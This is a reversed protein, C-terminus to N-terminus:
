NNKTRRTSDNNKGIIYKNYFSYIYKKGYQILLILKLILKPYKNQNNVLSTYLENLREKTLSHTRVLAKDSINTFEPAASILKGLMAYAFFKTGPYPVAINYTTNDSKLNLAFEKTEQITQETDSPLGIIFCSNIKIKNKKLCNIVSTIEDKDLQKELKKLIEDNGSEVGVNCLRCGSQYMIKALEEDINKPIIDCAWSIKIGSDIINKCLNLVWNKDYNFIDSKFYVYTTNYQEICYKVENIISEISRFRISNGNKVSSLCFFCNYPCGRSVEIDVHKNNLIFNRQPFPLFDLNNINPRSENKVSQMNEDTYCIGLIENDAVGDLIEELTKEPEGIIVYNIYPNEYTVNTNYTLFPEGFVIIKVKPLLSKIQSLIEFNSRLNSFNIDAVLYDPSFELIETILNSSFEKTNVCINYGLNQAIAPLYFNKGNIFYVNGRSYTTKEKNDM